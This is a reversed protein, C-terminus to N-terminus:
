DVPFADVGGDLWGDPTPACIQGVCYPALAGCEQNWECEVCVGIRSCYPKLPDHCDSGLRCQGPELPALDVPEEADPSSLALDEIPGLLDPVADLPSVAAESSVEATHAVEAAGLDPLGSLDVLLLDSGTSADARATDVPLDSQLGPGDSPAGTAITTDANTRTDANGGDKKVGSTSDSSGCAASFAVLVLMAAEAFRMVSM